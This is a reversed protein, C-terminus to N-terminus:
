NAGGTLKNGGPNNREWDNGPADPHDWDVAHSYYLGFKMGQQKCAVALAAIPDRRFPTQAEVNFVSVKTNFMAFGDHHKATVILYKMGANKASAVWADPNFKTPNFQKAMQLYEERSISENRMLDEAYGSVSKGKWEGGAVSYIGWHILMGFKAERWWAIRQEHDKM